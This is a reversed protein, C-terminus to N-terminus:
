PRQMINCDSEKMTLSSLCANASAFDKPYANGERFSVAQVQFHITPNHVISTTKKQFVRNEPANATLKLSPIL